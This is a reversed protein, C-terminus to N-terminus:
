TAGEVSSDFADTERAPTKKGEVEGKSIEQEKKCGKPAVLRGVLVGRTGSVSASLALSREEAESAKLASQDFRNDRASGRDQRQCFCQPLSQDRGLRGRSGREGLFLASPFGKKM